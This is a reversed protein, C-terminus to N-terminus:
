VATVVGTRTDPEALWWEQLSVVGGVMGALALVGAMGGVAARGRRVRRGKRIVTTAVDSVPPPHEAQAAFMERLSNELVTMGGGSWRDSLRAPPAAARGAAPRAPSSAAPAG